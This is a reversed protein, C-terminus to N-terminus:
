SIVGKDYTWWQNPRVIKSVLRPDFGALVVHNALIDVFPFESIDHGLEIVACGRLLLDQARHYGLEGTVIADADHEMALEGFDGLSGGLFAVKHLSMDPDGWVRPVGDFSNAVRKVFSRLSCEAVDCVSGLGTVHPDDFHELSSVCPLDMLEAFCTRVAVSRDLNTHMSIISLGRRAATYVTASAHSVRPSAPTFVSPAEIYVPHHTVLVNCGAGVAQHVTEETADLAVFVGVIEAEPDGVSLGVHDWPEADEQPFFGFLAETLERVLM